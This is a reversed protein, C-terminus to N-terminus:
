TSLRTDPSTFCKSRSTESRSASVTRLRRSTSAAKVSEHLLYPAGARAALERGTSLHDAHVHTDVVYRITMGLDAAAQMYQEPTDVPDVVVCASKGGCGVIYSAAVAPETHLFQRLIM